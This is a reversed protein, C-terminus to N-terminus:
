GEREAVLPLGVCCPLGLVDLLLYVFLVTKLFHILFFFLVM